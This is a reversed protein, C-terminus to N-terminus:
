ISSLASEIEDDFINLSKYIIIEGKENIILYRPIQWLKIFKEINGKKNGKPLNYHQGSIKFKKISKKWSKISKDKSLYLFVVNPYEKKLKEIYPLQKICDKCWSAWFDIFVKKGKNKNLITNLSIQKNDLDILLEELAEQSFHTPKKFSCGLFLALALILSFFQKM